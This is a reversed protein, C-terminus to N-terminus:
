GEQQPRNQWWQEWKAKTTRWHVSDYPIEIGTLKELAKNVVGACGETEKDFAEILAPVDEITGCMVLSEVLAPGYCCDLEPAERLLQLTQERAGLPGLFEAMWHSDHLSRAQHLKAVIRDALAARLEPEDRTKWIFWACAVGEEIHASPPIRDHRSFQFDQGASEEGLVYPMLERPTFHRFCAVTPPRTPNPHPWNVSEASPDEPAARENDAPTSPACGALAIVLAVLLVFRMHKM